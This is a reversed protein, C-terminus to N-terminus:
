PHSKPFFCFVAVEGRKNKLGGEAFYAWERRYLKKSNKLVKPPTVLVAGYDPNVEAMCRGIALNLLDAATEELFQQWGDEAVPIGECYAKCIAELLGSSFSLGVLSAKKDDIAMFVTTKKLVVGDGDNRALGITLTDMSLSDELYTKLFVMLRNIFGMLAKEDPFLSFM